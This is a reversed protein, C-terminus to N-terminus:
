KMTAIEGRTKEEPFALRRLLPIRVMWQEVRETSEVDPSEGSASTFLSVSITAARNQTLASENLDIFEKAEKDLLHRALQDM